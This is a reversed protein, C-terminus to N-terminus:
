AGPYLSCIIGHRRFLAEQHYHWGVKGAIRLLVYGGDMDATEIAGRSQQVLVGQDSIEQIAAKVADALGDEAAPSSGSRRFLYTAM